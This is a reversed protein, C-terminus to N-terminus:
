GWQVRILQCEVHHLFTFCFASVQSTAGLLIISVLLLLKKKM